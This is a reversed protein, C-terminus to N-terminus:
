KFCTQWYGPKSVIICISHWIPLLENAPIQIKTGYKRTRRLTQKQVKRYSMSLKGRYPSSYSVSSDSQSRGTSSIMEGGLGQLPRPHQAGLHLKPQGDSVTCKCFHQGTSSILFFPSLRPIGWPCLFGETRVNKVLQLSLPTSQNVPAALTCPSLLPPLNLDLMQRWAETTMILSPPCDPWM